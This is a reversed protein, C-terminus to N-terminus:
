LASKGSGEARVAMRAAGPELRMIRAGSGQFRIPDCTLVLVAARSAATCVSRVARAAATEPLGKLPEDLVAADFKSLDVMSLVFEGRTGSPLDGAKRKAAEVLGARDCWRALVDALEERPRDDRSCLRSLVQRFVERSPDLFPPQLLCLTSSVAERSGAPAGCILLKGSRPRGLGALRSALQSKGSGPGSALVVVEGSSVSLDLPRDRRTEAYGTIVISGSLQRGGHRLLCLYPM